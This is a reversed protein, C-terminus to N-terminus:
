EILSLFIFLSLVIGMLIASIAGWKYIPSAPKYKESAISDLVKPDIITAIGLTIVPGTLAVLIPFYINIFFLLLQNVGVVVGALLLMWLGAIRPAPTDEQHPDKMNETM